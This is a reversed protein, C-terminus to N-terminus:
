SIIGTNCDPVSAPRAMKDFDGAIGVNEAERLLARLAWDIAGTNGIKHMAFNISYVAMDFTERSITIPPRQEVSM